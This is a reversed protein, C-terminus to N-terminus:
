EAEFGHSDFKLTRCNETVARVVHAPVGGTGAPGTPAFSAEIELTIRVDADMLGSLHAIVEEAVRGADRAAREPDLKVSGHFRRALPRQSPDDGTRRHEDASAGADPSPFGAAAPAGAGAVGVLPHQSPTETELQARAADPKVVLGRDDATVDASDTNLGRYRQPGEDWSEAYAFTEDAWLLVGVGKGVAEAVVEPGALRPLYPYRAFDDALQRLAVHNGRWLPVRDMHTRLITAGLRGIVYDEDIIRKFARSAVGERNRMETRRWTVESTTSNQEPALLWKYVEPLRAEVADQASKRRVEVQRAQHPDLNLSEKENLISQWALYERLTQDMDQMRVKDAALFVLTNRYVRPGSGRSELLEKAAAEADSGPERSYARDAPLVM